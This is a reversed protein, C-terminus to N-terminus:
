FQDATLVEEQTTSGEKYYQAGVSHPGQGQTDMAMLEITLCSQNRFPPIQVRVTIFGRRFDNWM